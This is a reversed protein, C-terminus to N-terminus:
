LFKGLWVQAADLLRKARGIRGFAMGDTFGLEYGAEFADVRQSEPKCDCGFEPHCFESSGDPRMPVVYTRARVSM